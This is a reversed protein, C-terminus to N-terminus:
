HNSPCQNLLGRKKDPQYMSRNAYTYCVFVASERYTVRIKDYFIDFLYIIGKWIVIVSSTSNIMDVRFYNPYFKFM